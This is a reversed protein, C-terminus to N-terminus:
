KKKPFDVSGALSLDRSGLRDAQKPTMTFVLVVQDGNPSAILYFNQIVAAGDLRGQASVRYMWRGGECPVEGIQLEKEMDWGPTGAMTERFKEPDMHKGKEAPEWPTITVQAVFDGRELLRLIVHEETQGVLTWERSHALDFRSKPDVYLVQTRHPEPEKNGEPVSVLAVDTLTGPTDIASRQITTTEQVSAAPSAPGQEREDKQKWELWTLRKAKLDFHCTADVNLKVLAGLDIGSATGSVTIKALNDKVDILKGKLDHETLGEFHCLAQVASSTLKWTEDITVAKGSLLGTLNLTDFHDTAELEEHSLTTAPCYVLIQDKVRQAVFPGREPNLSRESRDNGVTISAKAMTYRRASKESFGSKDVILIRECFEHTASATEKLPLQKGERSVRIEGTLKMELRLRFCDGPKLEEVLPYTQAPGLGATLHLAALIGLTRWVAM